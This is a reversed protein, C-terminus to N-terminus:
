GELPYLRLGNETTLNHLCFPLMRRDARVVHICCGRVRAVDLSLADQFAMASLTFRKSLGARAVFRDFDSSGTSSTYGGPKCDHSAASNCACNEM